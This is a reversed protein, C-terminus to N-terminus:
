KVRGLVQSAIHHQQRKEATWKGSNRQKFREFNELDQKTVEARLLSDKGLEKKNYSDVLTKSSETLKSYDCYNKYYHALKTKGTGQRGEWNKDFQEIAQKLNQTKNLTEQEKKEQSQMDFFAIIIMLTVASTNVLRKTLDKNKIEM